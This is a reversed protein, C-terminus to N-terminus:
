GVSWTLRPARPAFRRRRPRYRARDAGFVHVIRVLLQDLLDQLGVHPLAADTIWQLDRVRKTAAMM